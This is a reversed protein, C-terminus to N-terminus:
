RTLSNAYSEDLEALFTEALKPEGPLNSGIMTCLHLFRNCTENEQGSELLISKIENALEKLRDAEPWKWYRKEPDLHDNQGFL